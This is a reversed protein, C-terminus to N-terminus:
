HIQFEPSGLIIGIAQVILKKQERERAAIKAKRRKRNKINRIKTNENKRNNDTILQQDLRQLMKTIDREPLLFNTYITLSKDLDNDESNTGLGKLDLSIGSIQNSALSIGFNMRKLLTGANIWFAGRDPYGTPPRCAYLPQGM